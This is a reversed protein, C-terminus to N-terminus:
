STNSKFNVILNHDRFRKRAQVRKMSLGQNRVKSEYERVRNKADPLRQNYSKQKKTKEIQKKM